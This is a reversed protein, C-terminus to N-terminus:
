ESSLSECSLTVVLSKIGKRTYMITRELGLFRRVFRKRMSFRVKM